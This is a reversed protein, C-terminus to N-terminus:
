RWGKAFRVSDKEADYYYVRDSLQDEAAVQTRNIEKVMEEMSDINQEPDAKLLLVEHISSPLIFLDGGLTEAADKLVGPYLLSSAGGNRAANTLVHFPANGFGHLRAPMLEKSNKLTDAFLQEESIQYDKLLAQNVTVNFRGGKPLSILIHCTVALDLFSRHPVEKLMEKEKQANCIRLCLLDKMLSYDRIWDDEELPFPYQLIEASEKLIEELSEGNEYEEYMRDLNLLAAAKQGKRSVTMAHYHCGPKKVEQFGAEADRYSGPLVNFIEKAMMTRFENFNM